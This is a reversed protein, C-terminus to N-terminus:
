VRCIMVRKRLDSGQGRTGGVQVRRVGVIGISMMSDHLPIFWFWGQKNQKTQLVLTAGEDKGSDRYGGEWYTWLAGKELMPDGERISLRSMFM